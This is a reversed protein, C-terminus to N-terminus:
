VAGYTVGLLLALVAAHTAVLYFSLTEPLVSSLIRNAAQLSHWGVFLIVPLPLVAAAIAGVLRRWAAAPLRRAKAALLPAAALLVGPSLLAHPAAAPAGAFADALARVAPADTRCRACAAEHATADVAPTGDFLLAALRTDCDMAPGPMMPRPRPRGPTAH